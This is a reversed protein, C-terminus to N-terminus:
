TTRMAMSQIRYKEKNDGEKDDNEKRAKRKPKNRTEGNVKQVANKQILMNSRAIHPRHTKLEANTRQTRSNAKQRTAKHNYQSIKNQIKLQLKTWYPKTDRAQQILKKGPVCAETRRHRNRLHRAGPKTKTQKM